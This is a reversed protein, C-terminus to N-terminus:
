KDKAEAADPSAVSSRLSFGVFGPVPQGGKERAAAEAQMMRMELMAFSKGQFVPEQKLSAIYTPVLEPRLARGDIRIDNGGGEIAFGSLWLGNMSRRAFAQFYASYGKTNGAEGKQVFDVAQRLANLKNEVAQVEDELAKDKQRPKAEKEVLRILEAEANKLQTSVITAEARARSLRYHSYAILVSFGLVILGLAQVMTFASFLKEQKLFVPNFLNIQQSM